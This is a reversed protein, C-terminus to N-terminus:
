IASVPPVNFPKKLAGKFIRSVKDFFILQSIWYPININELFIWDRQVGGFSQAQYVELPIKSNKQGLFALSPKNQEVHEPICKNQNINAFKTGDIKM